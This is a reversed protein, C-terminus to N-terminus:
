VAELELLVEVSLLLSTTYPVLKKMAAQCFQSELLAGDVFADVVTTSCDEETLMSSEIRM